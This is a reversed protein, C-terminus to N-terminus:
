KEAQTILQAIIYIIVNRSSKHYVPIKLLTIVNIIGFLLAYRDLFILGTLAGFM